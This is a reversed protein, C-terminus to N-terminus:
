FIKNTASRNEYQPLLDDPNKCWTTPYNSEPTDFPRVAKITQTIFRHIEENGQVHLRYTQEFYLSFIVWGCPAVGWSIRNRLLWPHFDSIATKTNNLIYKNRNM